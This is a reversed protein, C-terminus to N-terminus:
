SRSSFLLLTGTSLQVTGETTFGIRELLRISDDNGPSVIAVIRGLGLVEHGFAKVASASEKAYGKSWYAPLFAFGIDPDDLEERKLLGCMGIPTGWDRLAVLYLGFGYRLYSAVPGNAIYARADALDRVHKDGINRLFSPENLLQLVFEADDSDFHRLTLRDTTLVPTTSASM